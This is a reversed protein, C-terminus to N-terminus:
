IHPFAPVVAIAVLRLRVYLTGYVPRCHLIAQCEKARAFQLGDKSGRCRPGDSHKACLPLCDLQAQPMQPHGRYMAADVVPFLRGM